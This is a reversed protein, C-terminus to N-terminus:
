RDGDAPQIQIQNNEKGKRTARAVTIRITTVHFNYPTHTHTSTLNHKSSKVDGLSMADGSNCNGQFTHM